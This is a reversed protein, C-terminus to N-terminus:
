NGVAVATRAAIGAWGAETYDDLIFRSLFYSVEAFVEAVLGVVEGLILAQDCGQFVGDGV